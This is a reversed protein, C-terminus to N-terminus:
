TPNFNIRGLHQNCRLFMELSAWSIETENRLEDFSSHLKDTCLSPQYLPKGSAQDAHNTTPDGLIFAKWLVLVFSLHELARSNPM